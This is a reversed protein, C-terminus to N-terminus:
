SLAEMNHNVACAGAKVLLQHIEAVSKTVPVATNETFIAQAKM